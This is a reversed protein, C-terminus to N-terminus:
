FVKKAPTEILKSLFEDYTQDPGSIKAIHDLVASLERAMPAIWIASECEVTSTGASSAVCIM